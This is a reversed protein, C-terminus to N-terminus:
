PKTQDYPGRELPNSYGPAEAAAVAREAAIEQQRHEFAANEEGRRVRDMAQQQAISSAVAQQAQADNGSALDAVDLDNTLYQRKAEFELTGTTVLLVGGNDKVCAVLTGASLGTIGSPSAVSLYLLTFYIGPAALRPLPRTRHGVSTPPTKIARVCYEIVEELPNKRAPGSVGTTKGYAGRDLANSHGFMEAAAARVAATDRKKQDFIGNGENQIAKDMAQRQAIFLVALISVTVLGITVVPFLRM